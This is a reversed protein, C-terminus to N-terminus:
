QKFSWVLIRSKKNGQQMNVVKHIANLKDLQKLLKPLHKSKSILTTFHGVQKKFAVSQKIMRKVFLAEGGNCWLENSIGGFNRATNKGLHLRKNKQMTAKQAEEESSFFPPNCITFDFYEDTRIIGEFINAPTPQLRIDIDSETQSKLANQKAIEVSAESIDTGVMNWKYIRSALLPYICNAGVGIDLGKCTNKSGMLDAIHHIYDVRSPIPPCLYGEPLDWHKIHYFHDLIAKNLAKVAKANSFDITKTGYENVFVYDSLAPTCAQLQDFNYSKQHLNNHHM